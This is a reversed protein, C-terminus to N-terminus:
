AGGDCPGGPADVVVAGHYGRGLVNMKQPREIWDDNIPDWEYISRLAYFFQDFGGTVLFTDRYPTSTAGSLPTPMNTTKNFTVTSFSLKEADLYAQQENETLGGGVIFYTDEATTVM